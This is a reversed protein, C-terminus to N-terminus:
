RSFSKKIADGIQKADAESVNLEKIIRENKKIKRDDIKLFRGREAVFTIIFSILSISTAVVAMIIVGSNM